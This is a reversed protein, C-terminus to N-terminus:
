CKQQCLCEKEENCPSEIFENISRSLVPFTRVTLDRLKTLAIQVSEPDKLKLIDLVDLSMLLTEEDMETTKQVVALNYEEEFDLELVFVYAEGNKLMVNKLVIVEKDKIDLRRFFKLKIGNSRKLIIGDEGNLYSILNPVVYESYDISLEEQYNSISWNLLKYNLSIKTALTKNFEELIDIMKNM